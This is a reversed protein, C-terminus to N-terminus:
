PKPFRGKIEDVKAFMAAAEPTAPEGRARIERMLVDLVDGLTKIFDGQEKGLEDRYALARAERYPLPAARRAQEANWNEVLSQKEDNSLEVRRGDVLRPGVDADTFM